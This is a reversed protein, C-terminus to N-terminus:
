HLPVHIGRMREATLLAARARAALEAHDLWFAAHHITM